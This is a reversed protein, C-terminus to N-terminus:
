LFALNEPGQRFSEYDQLARLDDPLSNWVMPGHMIATFRHSNNNSSIHNPRPTLFGLLCITTSKRVQILSATVVSSGPTTESNTDPIFSSFSAADPRTSPGSRSGRERSPPSPPSTAASNSPQVGRPAWSRVSSISFCVSTTRVVSCADRAALSVLEFRTLRGKRCIRGVAAMGKRRWSRNCPNGLSKSNSRLM